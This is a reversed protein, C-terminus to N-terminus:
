FFRLGGDGRHYRIPDHLEGLTGTISHQQNTAAVPWPEARALGNLALLALVLCARSVPTRSPTPSTTM